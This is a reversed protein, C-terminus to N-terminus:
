RKIFAKCGFVQAKHLSPLTGFFPKHPIENTASSVLRNQIFSAYRIAYYWFQVPVNAANMMTRATDKLSRNKREALGNTQPVRASSYIHDISRNNFFEKLETSSFEGGQDSKFEKVKKGTRNEAWNIFEIIRGAADSKNRLPYTRSFRSYEDVIVMYYCHGDCSEPFPGALDAHIRDLVGLVGHT